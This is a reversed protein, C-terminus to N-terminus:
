DEEILSGLREAIRVMQGARRDVSGRCLKSVADSLTKHCVVNTDHRDTERTIDAVRGPRLQMRNGPRFICTDCQTARVHLGRADWSKPPEEEDEYPLSETM